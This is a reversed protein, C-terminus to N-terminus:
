YELGIPYRTGDRRTGLRLAKELKKEIRVRMREAKKPCRIWRAPNGEWFVKGDAGILYAFPWATIGYTKTNRCGEDWLVPHNLKEAEVLRRMVELPEGICRNIEMVVLGSDAYEEEWRVLHRRM